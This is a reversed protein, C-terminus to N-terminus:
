PKPYPNPNPIPLRFWIQCTASGACHVTGNALRRDALMTYIMRWRTAGAEIMRRGNLITTAHTKREMISEPVCPPTVPSGHLLDSAPVSLGGVDSLTRELTLEWPRDNQAPRRRLRVIHERRVRLRWVKAWYIKWSKRKPPTMSLNPTCSKLDAHSSGILTPIQPRIFLATLAYYRYLASLHASVLFM